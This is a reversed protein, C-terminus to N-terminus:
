GGGDSASPDARTRPDADRGIVVWVARVPEDGIAWLRHPSSSDFAISGGPGLEYEDFGVRVGLTGSVVYGYEKGGHTMLADEPCSAADVPYVVYLFEVEPDSQPTLREWRVGSALNIVRRTEPTEALGNGGPSHRVVPGGSQSGGFVDSMTMGLETVLAYLTSVSPNVRDLEIQSVLSPSVGVRRALERLSIGVRKRETRLRSGVRSAEFGRELAGASAAPESPPRDARAVDARSV